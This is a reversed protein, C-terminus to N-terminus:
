PGSLLHTITLPYSPHVCFGQCITAFIEPTPSPHDPGGLQHLPFLIFNRLNDRMSRLNKSLAFLINSLFGHFYKYIIIATGVIM